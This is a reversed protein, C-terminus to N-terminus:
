RLSLPAIRLNRFALDTTPDHGQLAIHGAATFLGNRPADAPPRKDEWDVVQYGDVWVNIRPGFAAVTM